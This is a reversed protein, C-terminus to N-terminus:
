EVEERRSSTHRARAGRLATLNRPAAAARLYGAASGGDQTTEAMGPPRTSAPPSTPGRRAPDAGAARQRRLDGAIGPGRAADRLAPRDVGPQAGGPRALSRSVGFRGATGRCSKPWLLAFASENGSRGAGLAQLPRRGSGTDVYGTDPTSVLLNSPGPVFSSSGGRYLRYAAFDVETSQHSPLVKGNLDSGLSM